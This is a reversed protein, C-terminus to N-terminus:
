FKKKGPYLDLSLKYERFQDFRLVRVVEFDYGYWKGLQEFVKGCVAEYDHHELLNDKLELDTQLM